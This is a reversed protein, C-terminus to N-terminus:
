ASGQLSRDAGNGAGPRKRPHGSGTGHCAAIEDVRDEYAAIIRDILAIREEVSTKSYTEFSQRAAAVAKDVDDASGGTAVTAFPAEIFPDILEKQGSNAPEVWRGDIYHKGYHIM